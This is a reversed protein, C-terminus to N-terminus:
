GIKTRKTIILAQQKAVIRAADPEIGEVTQLSSKAHM